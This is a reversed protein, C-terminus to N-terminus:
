SVELLTTVLRINVSRMEDAQVRDEYHMLIAAFCAEVM